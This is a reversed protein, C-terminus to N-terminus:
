KRLELLAKGPAAGARLGLADQRSSPLSTPVSHEAGSPQQGSVGLVLSAGEEGPSDPASRRFGRM